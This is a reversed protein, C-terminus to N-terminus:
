LRPKGDRGRILKDLIRAAQERGGLGFGIALALCLAGFGIQFLAYLVVKNILLQDLVLFVTFATIALEALTSMALAARFRIGHLFAFLIRNVLRAALIGLVLMLVAAVLKPMFLTARQLLEAMVPLSLSSAALALTILIVLWYALAAILTSLSLKIHSQRLFAEVGSREVRQQFHLRALLRTIGTRLAKAIIWGLALLVLVGLLRPLWAALQSFFIQLSHLTLDVTQM